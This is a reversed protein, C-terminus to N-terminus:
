TATRPATTPAPTPRASLLRRGSKTPPSDSAPTGVPRRRKSGRSTRRRSVGALSVAYYATCGNGTDPCAIGYDDGVVGYATAGALDAVDDIKGKQINKVLSANTTSWVSAEYKDVCVAGVKVSDVPCKKAHAVSATGLTM